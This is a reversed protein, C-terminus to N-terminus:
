SEVSSAGPFADLIRNTVLDGAEADSVIRSEGVYEEEM